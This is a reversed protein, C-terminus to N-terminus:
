AVALTIIVLMGAAVGIYGLALGAIAMGRGGQGSTRIQHLAVHGLIVAVVSGIWWMWLIGLIM